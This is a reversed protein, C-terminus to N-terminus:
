GSVPSDPPGGRTPTRGDSRPRTLLMADGFSYFRYGREVATRYLSLTRDRGAFASVLMLLTSRPLHFNTILADIARLPRGPHLFITTEGSGSRVHGAADVTSELTRVTTTGVAVIRGGAARVEAIKAATEAPLHYREAHMEHDTLDDVEVPRFTGPGVHLTVTAREVGKAELRELLAPTFHLGATPAAVAGAERAYVTQYDARDRAARADGPASEDDDRAIYPPLPVRGHAELLELDRGARGAPDLLRVTWDMRPRGDADLPRAIMEATLAGGELAIREGPKPKRAPNVFASWAGSVDRAPELLLLEVRGGSARRGVLRTPVVRTDNVVLLDGARLFRDLDRFHVHETRDSPVDHVCLRAADRPEAPHAAIREEPLAYDYASVSRENM